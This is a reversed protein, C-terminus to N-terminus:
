TASAAYQRLKADSIRCGIGPGEPLVAEGNRIPWDGEVPDDKLFMPGNLDVPDTLELYRFLHASAVFGLKSETLGGGLLGLGSERAIEGCLRAGRLGGMKTLKIVITDCAESRLAELVGSPSWVSEDLAIPISVKRRLEAHALLQNAPLPQELVDVGIRELGKALQVAQPLRYAQNADVRFFLNPAERKVAAVIDLDNAPNLGIKVDVGSYGEAVAERAKRAAEEPDTTSILYSLRVPHPSGSQWLGAVPLNCSRAILDHLATDVAAKAIPQGPHLSGAIERNMIRHVAALDDARQGVLAPRIYNEIASCVSEPTEYSWRPSPRAEGWGVAGNDGTVRVYVHPAGASEDGVTGRSTRFTQKMPLRLPFVDIASIRIM